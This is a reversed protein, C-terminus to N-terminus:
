FRWGLGLLTRGRQSYAPSDSQLLLTVDGRVFFRPTLQYAVGGTVEPGLRSLYRSNGSHLYNLGLGLYPKWNSDTTFHYAARLDIPITRLRDATDPGTAVWMWRQAVSLETSFHPSAFVRFAVGYGTNVTTGSKESWGGGPSDFFAFM